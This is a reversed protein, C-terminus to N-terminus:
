SNPAEETEEMFKNLPFFLEKLQTAAMNVFGKQFEHLPTVVQKVNNIYQLRRKKRLEISQDIMEVYNEMNQWNSITQSPTRLLSVLSNQTQEFQENIEEYSRKPFFQQFLTTSMLFEDRATKEWQTVEKTFQETIAKLNGQGRQLRNSIRRVESLFAEDRQEACKAWEDLEQFKSNWLMDLSSLSEGNEGDITMEEVHNEAGVPENETQVTVDAEQLKKRTKTEKLSEKRNEKKETLISM